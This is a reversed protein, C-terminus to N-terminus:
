WQEPTLLDQASHRVRVVYVTKGVVEFLIRYTGRRKGILLQRLDGPYWNSEPALPFRQPHQALKDIAELLAAQWKEAAIENREALWGYARVVEEHATETVVVRFSM